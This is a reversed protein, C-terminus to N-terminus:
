GVPWPVSGCQWRELDTAQRVHSFKSYMFKYKNVVKTLHRIYCGRRQQQNKSHNRSSNSKHDPRHSTFASGTAAISNGKKWREM